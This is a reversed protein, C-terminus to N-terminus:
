VSSYNGCCFFDSRLSRNKQVSTTDGHSMAEVGVITDIPWYEDVFQPM